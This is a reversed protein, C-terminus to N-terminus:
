QEGELYAALRRPMDNVKYLHEQVHMLWANEGKPLAMVHKHRALTWPGTQYGNAWLWWDTAAMTENPAPNEDFRVPIADERKLQDAVRNITPVQVRVGDLSQLPPGSGPFGVTYRSEFYSQTLAVEGTLRKSQVIGGIMLDVQLLRVAAILESESGWHWRVEAGLERALEQVIDVEVGSPTAGRIVWPENETLGVDLVGGRVDDLTGEVDNPYRCGAGLLLTLGLFIIVTRMGHAM